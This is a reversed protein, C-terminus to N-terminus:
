TGLLNQFTTTAHKSPANVTEVSDAGFANVDSFTILMAWSPLFDCDPITSDIIYCVQEKIVTDFEVDGAGLFRIHSVIVALFHRDCTM